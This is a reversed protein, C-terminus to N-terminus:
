LLPGILRSGPYYKLQEQWQVLFVDSLPRCLRGTLTPSDLRDYVEFYVTKAGFLQAAAFFPFAVGAGCSVVLKPREERLVSVALRFNRIMNPINRTTPSYAWVTREGALMSEADPAHFTVWVREYRSWWDHLAAMQTLHGGTSCVLLVKPRSVRAVWGCRRAIDM